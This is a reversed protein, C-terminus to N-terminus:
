GAMYALDARLGALNVGAPQWASALLTHSEDCYKEWFAVTMKQKQGWTIATITTERSYTPDMTHYAPCFVAHGGAIGGDNAVVDWVQGNQFQTMASNPVQFGIYVGGFEAISHMIHSLNGPQPQVFGELVHGDFGQAKWNNLVDLEVGGNDTSPNGPVYGCWKSYYSEITADPETIGGGTFVQLAHGCAAITCDGLTDNMMMGWATFGYPTHDAFAPPVYMKDVYHSMRLAYPNFKAAQKGLKLNM